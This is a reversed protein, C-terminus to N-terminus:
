MKIELADKSNGGVYFTIKPNTSKDINLDSESITFQIVEKTKSKLKIKKFRLLEQVPRIPKSPKVNYYLQVTEVGDYDGDNEVTVYIEYKNEDNEKKCSADSYTFHTYSLGYGFPYMAGEECDIYRSTFKDDSRYPRGTSFHNYYIPCQGTARPFSMTLKGEPVVCGSIVNTIAPSAMIGLQWCEVIASCQEAIEKGLVLPRGNVLLLVTPVKKQLIFSLAAKQADSLSINTKAAAEGSEIFSEGAVVIISDYKAWNVATNSLAKKDFNRIGFGAIYDVDYLETLSELITKTHEATGDAAWNGHLERRSNALEGLVLIKKDKGLPLVGDNKLLVISKEASELAVQLTEKKYLDQKERQEDTYPNEFLGLRMKLELVALVLKDIEQESVVGSCVLNEIAHVYVDSCMDINLQNKVGLCAADSEDASYGHAITEVLSGFDSVVVGNFKWLKRLIDQLLMENVTCPVGNLDNFATMFSAVNKDVCAKFPPLYVNHLNWDSLSVTNYEKGAEAVGYAVFHKACAAMHNLDIKDETGQFGEVKAQAFLSTLYTDEGFSEMVRGWRSDRVVDVMPAYTWKYGLASGELASLEATKRALDPEWSCSEALPTPFITRVGHVIDNAFLLPIHLRSKEVAIKQWKNLTAVDKVFLLSGVKGDEILKEIGADDTKEYISAGFQNLQGVKEGITMESVLDVLNEKNMRMKKM